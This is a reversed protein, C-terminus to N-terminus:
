ECPGRHLDFMAGVAMLLFVCAVKHANAPSQEDYANLLHDGDFMPRPLISYMWDVNEWYSETLARGETEWDPLKHRLTEIDLFPEDRSTLAKLLGSAPAASQIHLVSASPPPTALGMGLRKKEDESGDGSGESDEGERLYESGAFSGVFRAKGEASITLTGLGGELRDDEDEM